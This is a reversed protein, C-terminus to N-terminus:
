DAMACLGKLASLTAKVNEIGSHHKWDFAAPQGISSAIVRRFFQSSIKNSVAVFADGNAEEFYLYDENTAHIKRLASCGDVANWTFSETRYDSVAVGFLGSWPVLHLHAHDVGCGAPRGSNTPGHEFAIIPGYITELVGQVERRFLGFEALMEPSFSGVCFAHVRPVILLWGEVLSGRTPLAIFNESEFLIEDWPEDEIPSRSHNQASLRFRHKMPPSHASNTLWALSISLRHHLCKLGDSM